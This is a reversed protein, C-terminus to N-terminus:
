SSSRSFPKLKASIASPLQFFFKAPVAAQSFEMAPFASPSTTGLFTGETGALWGAGGFAIAFGVAWYKDSIIRQVSPWEDIRLTESEVKCDSHRLPLLRRVCLM